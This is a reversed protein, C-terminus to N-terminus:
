ICLKNRTIILQQISSIKFHRKFDHNINAWLLQFMVHKAIILFTIMNAHPHAHLNNSFIINYM